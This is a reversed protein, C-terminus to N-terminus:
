WNVIFSTVNPLIIISRPRVISFLGIYPHDIVEQPFLDALPPLLNGLIGLSKKLAEYMDLYIKLSWGDFLYEGVAIKM